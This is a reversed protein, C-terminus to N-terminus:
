KRAHLFCLYTSTYAAIRNERLGRRVQVEGFGPQEVLPAPRVYRGLPVSALWYLDLMLDSPGGIDPWIFVLSRM